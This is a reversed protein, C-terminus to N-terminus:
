SKRSPVGPCQTKELGKIFFADCYVCSPSFVSILRNPDLEFRTNVTINSWEWVGLIAWFHEKTESNYPPLTDILIGVKELPPIKRSGLSYM